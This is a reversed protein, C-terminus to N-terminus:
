YKSIPTLNAALNLRGQTLNPKMESCFPPYIEAMFKVIGNFKSCPPLSKNGLLGSLGGAGRRRM